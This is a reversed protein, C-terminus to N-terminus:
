RSAVGIDSTGCQNAGGQGKRRGSVLSGFDPERSRPAAVQAPIIEEYGSEKMSPSVVGRRVADAKALERSCGSLV